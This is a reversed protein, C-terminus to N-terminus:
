SWGLRMDGRPLDKELGGGMVDKRPSEWRGAWRWAELHLGARMRARGSRREWGSWESKAFGDPKGIGLFSWGERWAGGVEPVGGEERLGRGM